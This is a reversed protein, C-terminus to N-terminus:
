EGIMKIKGDYAWFQLAEQATIFARPTDWGSAKRAEAATQVPYQLLSKQHTYHIWSNLLDGEECPSAAYSVYVRANAARHPFSFEACVTGSSDELVSYYPASVHEGASTDYLVHGSVNREATWNLGGYAATWLQVAETGCFRGGTWRFHHFIRWHEPSASLKVAVSTFHMEKVDYARTHYATGDEATEEVERGENMPEDDERVVICIAGRCSLIEEETLDDLAGAPYGLSLLEGKVTQADSTLAGDEKEWNMPYRGFVAYGCLLGVCLAVAIIRALVSDSVTVRAPQLVYGSSEMEDALSSLSRLILVSVAILALGLILGGAGIRCLLSLVVYWIFLMKATNSPNGSRATRIGQWFCFVLALQLSLGIYSLWTGAAAYFVGQWITANLVLAPLLIAGRLLSLAWCATFWRNERRLPRFGLIQLVAGVAPLLIELRLVSVTVAGFAFGALIRNMARRWPTVDHAVDDPPLESVSSELLADFERENM